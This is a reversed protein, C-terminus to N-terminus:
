FLVAMFNGTSKDHLNQLPFFVTFNSHMLVCFLSFAVKLAITCWITCDYGKLCSQAKVWTAMGEKILVCTLHFDLCASVLKKSTVKMTLTVDFTRSEVSVYDVMNISGTAIPKRRGNLSEQPKFSLIYEPSPWLLM